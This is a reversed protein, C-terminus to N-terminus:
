YTGFKEVEKKDKSKKTKWSQMRIPFNLILRDQKTEKNLPMYVKM